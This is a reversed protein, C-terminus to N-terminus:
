DYHTVSNLVIAESFRLQILTSMKQSQTKFTVRSTMTLFKAMKGNLNVDIYEEDIFKLDYCHQRIWILDDKRLTGPCMWTTVEIM